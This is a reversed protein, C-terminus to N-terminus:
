KQLDEIRFGLRNLGTEVHIVPKIGAVANQKWFQLMEPSSIVPIFGYKHFLEVSDDGIGQLVFIKANPINKENKEAEVAHAVFFNRCNAKEYLTKAVLEADLGYANDKVVAAPVAPSAIKTLTVFNEVLNKLNIKLVPRTFISMIAIIEM